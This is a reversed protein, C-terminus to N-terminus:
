IPGMPLHLSDVLPAADRVLSLYHKMGDFRFSVVIYHKASVEGFDNKTHFLAMLQKAGQPKLRKEFTRLDYFRCFKWKEGKVIYQRAYALVAKRAATAAAAVRAQSGDVYINRVQENENFLDIRIHMDMFHQMALRTYAAKDGAGALSLNDAIVALAAINREQDWSVCKVRM